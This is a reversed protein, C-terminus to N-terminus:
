KMMARSKVAPTTPSAGQELQPQEEELQRVYDDVTLGAQRAAAALARREAKLTRVPIRSGSGSPTAPQEEEHITPEEPQSQQQQQEQQQQHQWLRQQLAPPMVVKVKPKPLLSPKPTDSGPAATPTPTAKARQQRLQKPIKSPAHTTQAQAQATRDNKTTPKLNTQHKLQAFYFM